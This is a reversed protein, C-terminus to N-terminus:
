EPVHERCATKTPTGQAMRYTPKASSLSEELPSHGTVELQKFNFRVYQLQPSEM